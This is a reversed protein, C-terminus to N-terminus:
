ELGADEAKPVLAEAEPPIPKGQAKMASAKGVLMKRLPERLTEQIDCAQMIAKEDWISQLLVCTIQAITLGADVITKAPVGCSSTSGAIGTTVLATLLLALFPKKM